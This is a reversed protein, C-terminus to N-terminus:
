YFDVVRDPDDIGTLQRADDLSPRLIDAFAAAAHITARARHLPCLRLRLNTDFSVTVNADRATKFAAFVADAASSSIAQSIGSAHVVKASRLLSAPMDNPTM